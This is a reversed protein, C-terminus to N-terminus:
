GSSVNTMTHGSAFIIVAVDSIALITFLASYTPVAFCSSLRADGNVVSLAVEVQVMNYTCEAARGQVLDLVYALTFIGNTTSCYPLSPM